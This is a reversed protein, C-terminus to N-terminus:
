GRFVTDFIKIMKDLHEKTHTAMYSTRIMSLEPPVGPPIFANTYVGADFLKKWTLMTESADGIIVPVIATDGEPVNLGIGRLGKRMYEANDLLKQKLEPTHELIDLSKLTAACSAPTPSASFILAPSHHKIYNIVREEGAVFGGLSSFTKSFTGMIMDVEETLGFESATGRGGEGIVGIAHADDCFVRADFKKAIKTIEPLNALEGSVSFVGDTVILKGSNEPLRSLKKELDAMDAHKFRVFECFSGKATLAAQIISAHNEKDCIIYDGRQAITALVGLATQYGTSFLLCAEKGLFKALREELENHLELTGTLYRSGSCGTGYRRTAEIAAEKVREDATLGLYNNSGAMLIDRGEIKVVPGENEGIAHFFPYIGAEKVEEARTFNYCKDFIDM